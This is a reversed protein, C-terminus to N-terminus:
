EGGEQFKRTEFRTKMFALLKKVEEISADGKLRNAGVGYLYHGLNGNELICGFYLLTKPNM